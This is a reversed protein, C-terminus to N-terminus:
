MVVESAGADRCRRATAQEASFQGVAASIIRCSPVSINSAPNLFHPHNFLNMFAAAYELRLSETLPFTKSLNVNHVHRGPGRLINVWSNGFRGVPPVAFASTDFWRATSGQEGALNGDAIRDPLGGFSDARSPDSGSFSPTFSQGNHLFAIWYVESNGFVQNVPRPLDTLFRRGRAFQLQWMVNVVGRHNSNYDDRNWHTPDIHACYDM